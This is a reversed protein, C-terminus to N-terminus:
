RGGSRPRAPRKPIPDGGARDEKSSQEVPRRDEMLPEDDFENRVRLNGQRDRYLVEVPEILTSLRNRSMSEGGHIDIVVIGTNFQVDELDRLSDDRPDIAKAKAASTELASARKVTVETFAEIGEDPVISTIMMTVEPDYSKSDRTATGALAGFGDPVAVTGTPNSWETEIFESSSSPPNKLWPIPLGFNPNQLRAKIRYRYKKSSEVHFDFARCLRYEIESKTVKATAAPRVTSSGDKDDAKKAVSQSGSGSTRLMPHSVADGWTGNVLPGLSTVLNKELLEDPITDDLKAEWETEFDDSPPVPQWDLKDPEAPNIEARELLCSMYQPRDGEPDEGLADEFARSYERMQKYWPVLGTVVVYPRADLQAKPNPKHGAGRNGGRSSANGAGADDAATDVLAFVGFGSDARLQEIALPKPDDRRTKPPALPPDFLLPAGYLSVDVERRKARDAYEVVQLQDRAPDFDAQSAHATAQDVKSLLRDPQKSADLVERGLASYIFMLFVIAVFGLAVKEGHELAANKVSQLDLKLKVKM